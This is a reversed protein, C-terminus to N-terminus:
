TEVLAYFKEEIPESLGLKNRFMFKKRAESFTLGIYRKCENDKKDEISFYSGNVFISYNLVNRLCRMNLKFSKFRMWKHDSFFGSHVIKNKTFEESQIFDKLVNENTFFIPFEKWIKLIPIQYYATYVDDDFNEGVLHRKVIKINSNM